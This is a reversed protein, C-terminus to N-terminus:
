PQDFPRGLSVDYRHLGARRVGNDNRFIDDGNVGITSVTTLRVSGGVTLVNWGGHGAPRADDGALDALIPTYDDASEPKRLGTLRGLPDRYGLSYAYGVGASVPTIPCSRAAPSVAQGGRALEDLYSGAVPVADTGPQPYRGHHTDSYGALSAHLERLNDQCAATQYERRVRQVGVVGFAVVLFAIGAAVAVNAHVRSIPLWRSERDRTVSSPVASTATLTNPDVFGDATTFLGNEVLSNATYAIAALALGPPPADPERDAALPSLASMVAALKAALAPDAALRADVEAREAPDLQNLAYDILRENM